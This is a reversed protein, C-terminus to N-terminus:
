RRRAAISSVASGSLVGRGSSWTLVARSLDLEVFRGGLRAAELARADHTVAADIMADATGQAREDDVLVAQRSAFLETEDFAVLGRRLSSFQAPDDLAFMSLLQEEVRTPSVSKPFQPDEFAVLAQILGGLVPRWDDPHPESLVRQAFTLRSGLGCGSAALALLSCAGLWERRSLSVDSSM